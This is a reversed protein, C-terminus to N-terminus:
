KQCDGHYNNVEKKETHTHIELDRFDSVETIHVPTIYTFVIKCCVGSYKFSLKSSSFFFFPTYIVLSNYSSTNLHSMSIYEAWHNILFSTIHPSSKFLKANLSVARVAFSSCLNFFFPCGESM